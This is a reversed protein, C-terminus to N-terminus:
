EKLENQADEDGPLNLQTLDLEFETDGYQILFANLDVYNINGNCDIDPNYPLDECSIQACLNLSSAIFVM